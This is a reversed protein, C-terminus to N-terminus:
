REYRAETDTKILVDHHIRDYFDKGLKMGAKYEEASITGDGNRDVQRRFYAKIEAQDIQKDKNLDANLLFENDLQGRYTYKIKTQYDGMDKSTSKSWTEKSMVEDKAFLFGKTRIKGDKNADHKKLIDKAVEAGMRDVQAEVFQRLDEGVLEGGESIRDLRAKDSSLGYSGLGLRTEEWLSIDGDGNGDYSRVFEPHYFAKFEEATLRGDGNTDIARAQAAGLRRYTPIELSDKSFLRKSETALEVIGDQNADFTELALKAAEAVRKTHSSQKEFHPLATKLDM